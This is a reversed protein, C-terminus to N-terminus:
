HISVNRLKKQPTTAVKVADRGQFIGKRKGLGVINRLFARYTPLGPLWDSRGSENGVAM